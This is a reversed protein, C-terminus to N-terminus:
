AACDCRMSSVVRLWAAMCGDWRVLKGGADKLTADFGAKDKIQQVM